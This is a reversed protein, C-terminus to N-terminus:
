YKNIVKKMIEESKATKEREYKLIMDNKMKEIELEKRKLDQLQDETSQPKPLKQEKKKVLSIASLPRSVLPSQQNALFRQQWEENVPLLTERNKNLHM